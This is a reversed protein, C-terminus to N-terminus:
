VRFFVLTPKLYSVKKKSFKKRPINLGALFYILYSLIPISSDTKFILGKVELVLSQICLFSKQKLHNNQHMNKRWIRFNFSFLLVFNNQKTIRKWSWVKSFFTWPLPRVLFYFNLTPWSVQVVCIKKKAKDYLLGNTIEPKLQKPLATAWHYLAQSSVSPSPTRTEGVDSCQPGQALCM